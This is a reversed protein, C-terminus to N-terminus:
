SSTWVIAEVDGGRGKKNEPIWDGTFIVTDCEVVSVEGTELDRIEIGEVREKGFINTVRKNTLIPARALIDAYFIKAPLFVPLYLQHHPLETVMGAVKVSAHLLTTVVSLSVIEAGVIVARKGVPLGHKYV